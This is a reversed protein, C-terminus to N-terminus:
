DAGKVTWGPVVVQEFEELEVLRGGEEEMEESRLLLEKFEEDEDERGELVDVVVGMVVVEFGGVEMELEESRLEEESREDLEGEGEGPLEEPLILPPTRTLVTLKAEAPSKAARTPAIKAQFSKM